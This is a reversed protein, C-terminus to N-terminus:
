ESTNNTINGLGLRHRSADRQVMIDRCFTTIPDNGLPLPGRGDDNLAAQIQQADNTAKEMRGSVDVIKRPDTSGGAIVFIGIDVM